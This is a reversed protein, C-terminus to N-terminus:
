PGWDIYIPPTVYNSINFTDCLTSSVHKRAPFPFPFPSMHSHLSLAEEQIEVIMTNGGWEVPTGVWLVTILVQSLDLKM